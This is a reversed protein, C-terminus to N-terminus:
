TPGRGLVVLVELIKKLVDRQLVQGVSETPTTKSVLGM